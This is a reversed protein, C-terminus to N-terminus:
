PLDLPSRMEEISKVAGTGRTGLDEPTKGDTCGAGVKTNPESGGDRNESM